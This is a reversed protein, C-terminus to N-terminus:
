FQFYEAIVHPYAKKFDIKPNFIDRRNPITLFGNAGSFKSFKKKHAIFNEEQTPSCVAPQPAAEFCHDQLVVATLFFLSLVVNICAM